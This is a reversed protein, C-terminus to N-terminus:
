RWVTKISVLHMGAGQYGRAERIRWIRGRRPSGYLVPSNTSRGCAYNTRYGHAVGAAGQLFVCRHGNFLQIAWPISSVYFDVNPLSKTLHIRVAAHNWPSGVCLVNNSEFENEFCPDRIFNGTFCRYAHGIIESTTWCSGSDPVIRLGSRVAGDARYPTYHIVRTRAADASAAVILAVAVALALGRVVHPRYVGPV